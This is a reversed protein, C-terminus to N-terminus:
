VIASSVYLNLGCEGSGKIMRIYGKEGWSSGWSNKIIWFQIKYGFIDVEEGYGVILIGHDLQTGCPLDFVGFM